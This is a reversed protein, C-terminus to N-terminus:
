KRKAKIKLTYIDNDINVKPHVYDINNDKIIIKAEPIKSHTLTIIGKNDIKVNYIEDSDFFTEDDETIVVSVKNDELATIQIGMKNLEETSSRPLILSGSGWYNGECLQAANKRSRKARSTSSNNETETKEKVGTAKSRKVTSVNDDVKKLTQPIVYRTLKLDQNTQQTKVYSFNYKYALQDLRVNMPWGLAVGGLALAAGAGLGVTGVSEGGAVLCITGGVLGVVGISALTAGTYTATKTGTHSSKKTNLAFPVWLDLTEDYTLLYAYFYDSDLQIKAEGSQNITALESRDPSYIKTGPVGQVTFKEVTSCGSMILLLCGSIITHLIKNM